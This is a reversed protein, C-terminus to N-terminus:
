NIFIAYKQLVPILSNLNAAYYKLLMLRDKEKYYGEPRKM